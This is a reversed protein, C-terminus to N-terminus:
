SFGSVEECEWLPSTGGDTDTTSGASMTQFRSRTKMLTPTLNKTLNHPSFVSSKPGILYFKSSFFQIFAFNAYMKMIQM